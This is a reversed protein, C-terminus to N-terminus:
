APEWAKSPTYSMSCYGNLDRPLLLGNEAAHVPPHLALIRIPMFDFVVLHQSLGINSANVTLTFLADFSDAAYRCM